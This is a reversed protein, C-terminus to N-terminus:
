ATQVDDAVVHQIHPTRRFWYVGRAINSTTSLDGDDASAAAMRLKKSIPRGRSLEPQTYMELCVRRPAQRVSIPDGTRLKQTTAGWIRHLPSRGVRSSALHSSSCRTPVTM